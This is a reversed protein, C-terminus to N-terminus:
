IQESLYVEIHSLQAYTNVIYVFSYHNIELSVQFTM